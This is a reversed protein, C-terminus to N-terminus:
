DIVFNVHEAYPGPPDTFVRVRHKGETLLSLFGLHNGTLSGVFAGADRVELIGDYIPERDEHPLEAVWVDINVEGEMDCITSVYIAGSNAVVLERGTPWEPPAEEADPVFLVVQCNAPSLKMQMLRM